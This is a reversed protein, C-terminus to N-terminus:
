CKVAESSQTLPGWAPSLTGHGASCGLGLRAWSGSGAKSIDIWPGMELVGPRSCIQRAGASGRWRQGVILSSGQLNLCKHHVLNQKM